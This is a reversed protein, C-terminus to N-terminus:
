PTSLCDILVAGMVKVGCVELNSRIQQYTKRTTIDEKAIIVVGDAAYVTKAAESGTLINGAAVVQMGEPMEKTFQEALRDLEVKEVDGVLAITGPTSEMESLMRGMSQAMAALRGEYESEKLTVGFIHYILRDLFCQKKKGGKGPLEGLVYAGTGLDEQAKIKGSFAYVVFLAFVALFVGAAGAIILYKIGDKIAEGLTSVPIEISSKKLKWNQYEENLEPVNQLWEKELTEQQFQYQERETNVCVYSAGTDTKLSHQGLSKQIFSYRSQLAEAAIRLLEDSHEKTDAVTRITFAYRSDDFEVSLIERLYKQDKLEFSLKELVTGYFEGSECYDYYGYTIKYAPNENQISSGPLIQYDTDVYFSMSGQWENRPAIKMLMSNENYEKQNRLNRENERISLELAMGEAEYANLADQYEADLESRKEEDGLTQINMAMRTAGVAIAILVAFLLIGRWKLCTRYLVTVLNIENEEYRQNM